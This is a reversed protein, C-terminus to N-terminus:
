SSSDDYICDPLSVHWHFIGLNNLVYMKLFDMKWQWTLKGSDLMSSSFINKNIHPLIYGGLHYTEYNWGMEQPIYTLCKSKLFWSTSLFFRFTMVGQVILMSGSISIHNLHNEREIPHHELEFATLKGPHLWCVTSPLFGALWRPHISGQLYHSLSGVQVPAPNRGDVTPCWGGFSDM